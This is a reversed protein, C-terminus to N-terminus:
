TIKINGSEDPLTQNVWCLSHWQTQWSEYGKDAIMYDAFPLRAILEPAAKTDHVLCKFLKGLKKKSVLPQIKPCPL